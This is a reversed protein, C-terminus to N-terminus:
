ELFLAKRIIAFYGADGATRGSLIHATAFFDLMAREVVHAVRRDIGCPIALFRKAAVVQRIKGKFFAVFIGAVFGAFTRRFTFYGFAAVFM